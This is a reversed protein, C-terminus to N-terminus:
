RAREKRTREGKIEGWGKVNTGLGVGHSDGLHAERRGGRAEFPDELGGCPPPGRDLGRPEGEQEEAQEVEERLVM